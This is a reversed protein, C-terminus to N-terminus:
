LATYAQLAAHMCPVVAIEDHIEGVGDGFPQMTKATYSIM